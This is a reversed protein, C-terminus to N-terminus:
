KLILKLNLVGPMTHDMLIVSEACGAVKLGTTHTISIGVRTNQLIRQLRQM